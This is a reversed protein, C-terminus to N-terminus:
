DASPGAPQWTVTLRERSGFAQLRTTLMDTIRQLSEPDAAEARLTIADDGAQATWRGWNLTVTGSLDSWEAARVEPPTHGAQRHRKWHGSHGSMKSAHERLRALYRDPHETPIVAEATLMM